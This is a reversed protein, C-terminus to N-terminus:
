GAIRQVVAAPPECRAVCTINRQAIEVAIAVEVREERM